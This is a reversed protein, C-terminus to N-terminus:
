LYAGCGSGYSEEKGPEKVGGGGGGGDWQQMKTGTFRLFLKVSLASRIM